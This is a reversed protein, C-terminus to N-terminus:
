HFGAAASVVEGDLGNFGHYGRAQCPDGSNVGGDLWRVSAKGGAWRIFPDVGAPLTFRCSDRRHAIVLTRPLLRPSGLINAVNQRGGSGDTLFGSTLVLADPKAGGAIGHAARLTGKSTAIITVPRKIAAMYDVARALNVDADVVLVALGHALYANRTRVLQNGKLKGIMGGPGAAIYGDGGPMLIISARPTSPRLLVANSGGISVTEDARILLTDSLFLAITSAILMVYRM